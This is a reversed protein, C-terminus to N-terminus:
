LRWGMFGPRVRRGAAFDALAQEEARARITARTPLAPTSRLGYRITVREAIAVSAVADDFRDDAILRIEEADTLPQQIMRDEEVDHSSPISALIDAMLRLREESEPDDERLQAAIADSVLDTKEPPTWEFHSTDTDVFRNM